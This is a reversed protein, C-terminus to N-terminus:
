SLKEIARRYSNRIGEVEGHWDYWGDSMTDSGKFWQAEQEEEMKRLERGVHHLAEKLLGIAPDQWEVDEYHGHLPNIMKDRIAKREAHHEQYVQELMKTNAEEHRDWLRIWRAERRNIEDILQAKTMKAYKTQLEADEM